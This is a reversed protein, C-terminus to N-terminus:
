KKYNYKKIEEPLMGLAILFEEHTLDKPKLFKRVDNVEQLTIKSRKASKKGRRIAKKEKSSTSVAPEDDKSKKQIKNSTEQDLTEFAFDILSM